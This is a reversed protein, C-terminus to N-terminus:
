PWLIPSVSCKEIPQLRNCGIYMRLTDVTNYVGLPWELTVYRKKVMFKVGVWGKTISRLALDYGGGGGNRLVWGVVVGAQPRYVRGLASGLHHRERTGPFRRPTHRLLQCCVCDRTFGPICLDSSRHIASFVLGLQKLTTIAMNVQDTM